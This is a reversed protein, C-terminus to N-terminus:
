RDVRGTASSGPQQGIGTRLCRLRMVFLIGLQISNIREPKEPGALGTEFKRTMAEIDTATRLFPAPRLVGDLRRHQAIRINRLFVDTEVQRALRRVQLERSEPRGPM